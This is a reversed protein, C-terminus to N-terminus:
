RRPPPTLATSGTSVLVREEGQRVEATAIALRKGAHLLTGTAVLDRGDPQVARLFNLKVDLAAFATGTAAISQVVASTASTALLGLAGGHVTGWEQCLWPSAPMSFVVRGEQASLLRVGFLQDIPPPVREGTLLAQLQGLGSRERWSGPADAPAPREWPDPSSVAEPQARPPVLEVSGDIPAFVSCRSTGHAILRGTSDRLFVEALAMVSDAHLLRAQATLSGPAVPAPTLFTLALEATTSPTRPPLGTHVAAYSAGDALLTLVGPLVDGKPGAVWGTVPLVMTVEAPGVQTIRRGVLRAISPAPATGDQLAQLQERGPLAALGPYAASGRVPETRM